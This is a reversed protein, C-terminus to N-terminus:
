TEVSELLVETIWKTPIGMSEAIAKAKQDNILLLDASLEISLAIAYAEGIDLELTLGLAIELNEEKEPNKVILWGAEKAEVEYKIDPPLKAEKLTIPRILENWVETPIYIKSYLEKLLTLKGVTALYIMPSTNSVIIVNTM